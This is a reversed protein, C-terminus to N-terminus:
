HGGNGRVPLRVNKQRSERSWRRENNQRFTFSHVMTSVHAFQRSCWAFPASSCAFRSSSGPLSATTGPKSTTSHLSQSRLLGAGREGHGALDVAVVQYQHSIPELQGKWYSRDCSWGHVFVVAFPGNGRTEYAIRIGDSSTAARATALGAQAQALTASRAIGTLLALAGLTRASRRVEKTSLSSM